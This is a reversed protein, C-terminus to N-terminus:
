SWVYNNGQKRIAGDEVLATRARVARPETWGLPVMLARASLTGHQRAAAAYLDMDETLAAEREAAEEAEREAQGMDLEMQSLHRVVPATEPKGWNNIRGTEASEIAYFFEEHKSALGRQQLTHAVLCGRNDHGLTEGEIDTEDWIVIETDVTAGFQGTGSYSTGAKTTHHILILHRGTAKAIGHLYVIVPGASEQDSESVGPTAARFTDVIILNTDPHADLWAKVKATFLRRDAETSLCIPDYTGHLPVDGGRRAKIALMRSKITEPSEACIYLAEGQEVLKGQWSEGAAVHMAMDLAFASKGTNPQATVLTMEGYVLVDEVLQRPPEGSNDLDNYSFTLFGGPPLQVPKDKPPVYELDVEDLGAFDSAADTKGFGRERCWSMFDVLKRDQCSGHHCKFWFGPVDPSTGPKGIATGDDRDESHGDVGREDDATLWPCTLEFKDPTEEKVGGQQAYWDLAEVV